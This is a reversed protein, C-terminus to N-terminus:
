GAVARRRPDSPSPPSGPPMNVHLGGGTERQYSSHFSVLSPSCSLSSATGLGHFCALSPSLVPPWLSLLCLFFSRIFTGWLCLLSPLAPRQCLLLCLWGSAAHTHHATCKKSMEESVMELPGLIIVGSYVWWALCSSILYRPAPSPSMVM